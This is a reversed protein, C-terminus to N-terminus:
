SIQKRSGNNCAGHTPPLVDLDSKLFFVIGPVM